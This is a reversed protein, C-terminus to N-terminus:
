AWVASEGTSFGTVGRLINSYLIKFAYWQLNGSFTPIVM